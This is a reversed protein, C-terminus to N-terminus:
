KSEVRNQFHHRFNELRGDSKMHCKRCLWRWDTLERSYKSSINALDYPSVNQCEECLQPKPKRDKVWSHLATYGVQNGKWMPNKAGLKSNRLKANNGRQRHPHNQLWKQYAKKSCKRKLDPHERGWKNPDLQMNYDGTSNEVFLTNNNLPKDFCYKRASAMPEYNNFVKDCRQCRVQFNHRTNCGM